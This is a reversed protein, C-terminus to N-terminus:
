FRKLNQMTTDDTEAYTGSKIGEEVMTETKIIYYTKNMIVITSDKDGKLIVVDKNHIAKLEKYTHDETSVVNKAFIDTYGRLFQLFNELDTQDVKDSNIYAISKIIAAIHKKINKDKSIFCHNLGMKLQAYEKENLQYNSLNIIPVKYDVKDKTRRKMLNLLKKNKTRFSELRERQLSKRLSKLMKDTFIPGIEGELKDKVTNYELRVDKIDNFHKNLHSKM